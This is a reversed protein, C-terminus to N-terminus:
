ESDPPRRGAIAAGIAAGIGAGFVIGLAIGPGGGFIVGFTLGVGAGLAVGIGVMQSRVNNNAM